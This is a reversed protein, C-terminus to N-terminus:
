ASIGARRVMADFAMQAVPQGVSLPKRQEPINRLVAPAISHKAGPMASLACQIDCARQLGYLSEFAGAVSAGTVLLGHNRLILIEKHGLSKLLRPGEDANTTIGEFDHYAVRNWFLAGYFNDHSLGEAMCAVAIGSTTHTHMICHAQPRAGHIVSHITFGAPNVPMSSADLKRGSADIKVLNRPTVEAYHLGFPNILYQPIPNTVDGVRLTIHNFITDTWGLYDFLRYCRALELRAVWEDAAMTEPCVWQEHDQV